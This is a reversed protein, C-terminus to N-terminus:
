KTTDDQGQNIKPEANTMRKLDEELQEPTEYKLYKEVLEGFKILLRTHAKKARQKEMREIAKKQAQLQAIKINIKELPENSKDSM